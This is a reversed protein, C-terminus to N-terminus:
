KLSEMFIARSFPKRPTPSERLLPANIGNLFVGPATGSCAGSIQMQSDSMEFHFALERFPIFDGVPWNGAALGTEKQVQELFSRSITGNEIQFSGKAYMLHTGDFRAKSIDLTVNYGTLAQNPIFVAANVRSFRGRFVGSWRSFTQQIAISGTFRCDTGLSRLMPFHTQLYKIPIGETDTTLTAEMVQSSNQVIKRLKLQIQAERGSDPVFFRIFTKPVGNEQSIRMEARQLELANEHFGVKVPGEVVLHIESNQFAKKGNISDTLIRQHSYWLPELCQIDLTLEPLIWKTLLIEKGEHLTKYQIWDIWPASALPLHKGDTTTGPQYVTLGHLRGQSRTQHTIGTITVPLGLQSSAFTGFNQVYLETHRYIGLLFLYLAPLFGFLLFLTLLLSRKSM